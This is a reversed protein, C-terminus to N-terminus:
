EINIPVQKGTKIDTYILYYGDSMPDDPDLPLWQYNSGLEKPPATNYLAPVGYILYKIKDDDFMTGVIYSTDDISDTVKIIKSNPIINMITEDAPYEKFMEELQEIVSSLFQEGEATDTKESNTPKATSKIENECATSNITNTTENDFNKSQFNTINQQNDPNSNKTNDGSIHNISCNNLKSQEDYQHSTNSTQQNDINPTNCNSQQNYFYHKYECNKCNGDECTTSIDSNIDTSLFDKPNKDNCNEDQQCSNNVYLYDNLIDKQTQPNTDKPQIDNSNKDIHKDFDDLNYNKIATDIENNIKEDFENDIYALPSIPEEDTFYMGSYSGGCLVVQNNNGTDVLACYIDLNMNVNENLSFEYHDDVKALKSTLVKDNYYVGLKVKENLEDLNYLRIKGTAVNGGIITLIARPSNSLFKNQSSLILTKSNM